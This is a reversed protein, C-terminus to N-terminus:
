PLRCRNMTVSSDQGPATRTAALRMGDASLTWTFVVSGGFTLPGATRGGPVNMNMVSAVGQFVYTAEIRSPTVSRVILASPSAAAGGWLGEWAGSFGALAPPVDAAPPTVTFTTGPPLYSCAPGAGAATPTSPVPRITPTATPAPATTAPAVTASVAPTPLPTASGETDSAKCAAAVGAALLAIGLLSAYGAIRMM